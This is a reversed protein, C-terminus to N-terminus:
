AKEYPNKPSEKFFIVFGSYGYQFGNFVKWTDDAVLKEIDGMNMFDNKETAPSPPQGKYAKTTGGLPTCIIICRKTHKKLQEVFHKVWALHEVTEISISVDVDRLQASDLDDVYFEVNKVKLRKREIEADAICGEDIDIGIVKKAVQAMLLSGYGTACAADLVTDGPMIWGRALFYRSIHPGNAGGGEWKYPNGGFHGSM